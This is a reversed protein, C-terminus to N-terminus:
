SFIFFPHLKEMMHSEIKHHIYQGFLFYNNGCSEQFEDSGDVCNKHFNCRQSDPICQGNRCQFEDSRCKQLVLHEFTSYIVLRDCSSVSDLSSTRAM